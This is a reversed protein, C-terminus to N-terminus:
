YSSFRFRELSYTQGSMTLSATGDANFTLSCSSLTSSAPSKWAGGPV